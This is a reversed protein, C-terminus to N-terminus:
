VVNEVDIIRTRHAQIQVIRDAIGLLKIQRGLQTDSEVHDHGAIAAAVEIQIDKGYM